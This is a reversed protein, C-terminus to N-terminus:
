ASGVTRLAMLDYRLIAVLGGLGKLRKSVPMEDSVVKVYGGSEEVRNLIEEIVEDGLLDESVLLKSVANLESAFKVEDVGYAVRASNKVLLEMFENFMDESEIADVEILLTKVSDRRMLEEIGARGGTSVSDKIVKVNIVETLKSAVLDKIFAPSGIVIINVEIGSLVKIVLEVVENIIEEISGVDKGLNPLSKDVLYRVGQNYLLAISVEDLDLAVLLAKVGRKSARELRRLESISWSEKVVELESGVDVNFTHHSGKLGYEEPGDVIIGHIRLRSSFPQFYVSKVKVALTLPLRRKGEGDVKVDRLTKAIVVDGEKVVNKLVWLDDEDEVRVAIVGKKLDKYLVRMELQIISSNVLSIFRHVM